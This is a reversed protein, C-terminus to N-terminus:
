APPGPPALAARAQEVIAAFAPPDTVALHALMKRNVAIGAKRLAGMFQSYTWGLPRVAANIRVQWLRRLQRKRLRRGEYEHLWKRMVAIRMMHYSNKRKGWFGKAERALKKRKYRRKPGRKVRPM